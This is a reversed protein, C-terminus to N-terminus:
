VQDMIMTTDSGISRRCTESLVMWYRIREDHCCLLGFGIREGDETVFFWAHVFLFIMIVDGLDVRTMKFAQQRLVFNHRICHYAKRCM